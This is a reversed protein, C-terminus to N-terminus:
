AATDPETLMDDISVGLADAWAKLTSLAPDSGHVEYRLITMATTGSKAALTERSWGRAERLTRLGTTPPTVSAITLGANADTLPSTQAPQVPGFRVSCTQWLAFLGRGSGPAITLSSVRTPNRTRDAAPRPGNRTSTM